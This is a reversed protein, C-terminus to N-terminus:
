AMTAVAIKTTNISTLFSLTMVQIVRAEGETRLLTLYLLKLLAVGAEVSLDFVQGM